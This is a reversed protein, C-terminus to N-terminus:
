FGAAARILSLIQRNEDVNKFDIEHSLGKLVKPQRFKKNLNKFNMTLGPSEDLNKTTKYIKKILTENQNTQSLDLRTRLHSRASNIKLDPSHPHSRTSHPHTRASHNSCRVALATTVSAVTRPKIGSDESVTSDSPCCILCHQCHQINYMFLFFDLSMRQFCIQSLHVMNNYMGQTIHKGVQGATRRTPLTYPQGL